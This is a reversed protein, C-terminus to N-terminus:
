RTERHQCRVYAIKQIRKQLHNSFKVKVSNNPAIVIGDLLTAFNVVSLNIGLASSYPQSPNELDRLIV